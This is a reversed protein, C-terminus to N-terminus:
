TRLSTGNTKHIINNFTVDENQDKRERTQVRSWLLWVDFITAANQCSTHLCCIYIIYYESRVYSAGWEGNVNAEFRQEMENMGKQKWVKRINRILVLSFRNYLRIIFRECVGHFSYFTYLLLCYIIEENRQKRERQM